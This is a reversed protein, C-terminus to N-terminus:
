RLTQNPPDIVREVLLDLTKQAESPRTLEEPQGHYTDLVVYTAGLRGLEAFDEHVQALSGQGPRRDGDPLPADTVRVKIRPVFAPQPRQLQEAAHRLLPLGQEVLWDIRVNLPHWGDGFRAARRIAAPTHGGVWVPPHPQAQLAILCADTLRGRREFPVGLAEFEARAWGAGVGFILRGGCLQDLNTTMRAILLPHRYPLIVVTTGLEITSTLGALWGLATFPEYFPEPYARAVDPTISVHDSLMVLHFGAAEAWRVGALMNAPTAAAGFNNINLGFKM